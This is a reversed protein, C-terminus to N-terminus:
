IEGNQSFDESVLSVQCVVMPCADNTNLPNSRRSGTAEAVWAKFISAYGFLFM